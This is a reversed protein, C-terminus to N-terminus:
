ISLSCRPRGLLASSGIFIISLRALLLIVVTLHNHRFRVLPFSLWSLSLVLEHVIPPSLCFRVKVRIRVRVSVRFRLRVSLRVRFFSVLSLFKSFPFSSLSGEPNSCGFELVLLEALSLGVLQAVHCNTVFYRIEKGKIACCTISM